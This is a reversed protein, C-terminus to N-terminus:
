NLQVNTDSRRRRSGLPNLSSKTRRVDETEFSTIFSTDTPRIAFEEDIFGLSLHNINTTTGAHSGHSTVEKMKKMGLFRLTVNREPVSSTGLTLHEIDFVEIIDLVVIVVELPLCRKGVRLRLVVPFTVL